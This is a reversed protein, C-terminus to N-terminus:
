FVAYRLHSFCSENGFFFCMGFYMPNCMGKPVDPVVFVRGSCACCIYHGDREDIAHRDCCVLEVLPRGRTWAAVDRRTAM